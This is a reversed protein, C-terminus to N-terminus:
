DSEKYQKHLVIFDICNIIREDSNLPLVLLVPNGTLIKIYLNAHGVYLLPKYKWSGLLLYLEYWVYIIYM